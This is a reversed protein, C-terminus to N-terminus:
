VHRWDVNAKMKKNTKHFSIFRASCVSRRCSFAPPTQRSVFSRSLCESKFLGDGM